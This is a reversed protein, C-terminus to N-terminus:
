KAVLFALEGAFESRTIRWGRGAVLAQFRAEYSEKMGKSKGGLSRSPFSVLVHRARVSELLRLGIGSEIQELCPLSKLLLALDVRRDPCARTVDAVEAGGRVGALALYDDLFGALDEYIDCAYYEAGEALPMWPIALPNLGCALDLVSRIPPLDALITAYFQDLIPLRERTSAHGSMIGRCARRWEAPDASERARRLEALAAAYDIPRPQYAGGVQHLVNRTAKIAEKLSRRKALERAGLTRILEECVHRYKASERVATTLRELPEGPSSVPDGSRAPTCVETQM